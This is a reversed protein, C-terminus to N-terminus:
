AKHFSQSIEADFMYIHMYDPERYQIVQIIHRRSNHMKLKCAHAESHYKRSIIFFRM